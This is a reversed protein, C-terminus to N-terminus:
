AWELTSACATLPRQTDSAPAQGGRGRGFLEGERTSRVVQSAANSWPRMSAVPARKWSRCAVSSCEGYREVLDRDARRRAPPSPPLHAPTGRAPPERHIHLESVIQHMERVDHQEHRIRHAVNEPQPPEGNAGREDVDRVKEELSRHEPWRNKPCEYEGCDVQILDRADIELTT